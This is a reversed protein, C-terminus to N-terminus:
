GTVVRGHISEVLAECVKQYDVIGEQPVRLAAVGGVHPEIERMESPGLMGLDELGNALGREPLDRLRPLEEENAAVVLKGCIEHPISHERCFEVMQRIGRVALRAKTSGPKYYLGSHLVGSNHGSQHRGVASEKELVTVRARRDQQGIRYPAALGVIGGGVVVVRQTM